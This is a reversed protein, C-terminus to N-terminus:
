AGLRCRGLGLMTGVRCRGRRSGPGRPWGQISHLSAAVVGLTGVTLQIGPDRGRQQPGRRGARYPSYSARAGLRQGLMPGSYLAPGQGGAAPTLELDAGPSWEGGLAAPQPKGRPEKELHFPNEHSRTEEQLVHHPGPRSGSPAPQNLRAPPRLAAAGPAPRKPVVNDVAVGEGATLGVHCARGDSAPGGRLLFLSRPPPSAAEGGVRGPRLRCSQPTPAFTLDCAGGGAGPRAGRKRKRSSPAARSAPHSASGRGSATARPPCLAAAQLASVRVGPRSQAHVSVHTRHCASVRVEM